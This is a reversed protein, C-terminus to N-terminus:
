LHLFWIYRMGGLSFLFRASCVPVSLKIRYSASNVQGFVEYNVRVEVNVAAAFTDAVVYDFGENCMPL